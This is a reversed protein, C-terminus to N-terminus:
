NSKSKTQKSEVTGDGLLTGWPQLDPVKDFIVKMVALGPIALFMGPIGCLAGGALVGILTVLANIRVKNGVILPMGVNNDLLQVLALIAGVWLVNTTEASSVLTILMCLINAILIGVYPILNLLAAFLALFIAYKIGIILFGITNLTFVLSTEILLGTLYKQAITSSEELICAVRTESDKKFVTILFAKISKRYYLLLYTYIPLLLVYTLFGTLSVFTISVLEPANEKLDDVTNTIYQNQKTITMNTSAKFWKQFSHTVENLREKLAPVDNMFNIIQSSLFYLIGITVAISLLLPISISLTNPLGKRRFYNTLPLLINALLISFLIPLILDKGYILALCLIALSILVLSLKQHFPSEPKEPM